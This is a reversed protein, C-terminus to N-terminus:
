NDRSERSAKLGLTTAASIMALGALALVSSADGLANRVSSSSFLQSAGLAAFSLGFCEAAGVVLVAIRLFPPRAARLRRWVVALLIPTLAILAVGAIELAVIISPM